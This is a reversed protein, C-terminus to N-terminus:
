GGGLSIAPPLIRLEEAAAEPGVYPLVAAYMMEPVAEEEPPLSGGGVAGLLHLFIGGATTEADTAPFREPHSSEYRGRELVEAMAKIGDELVMLTRPGLVAAEAIIFHALTRDRALYRYLVYATVRLQDRWSEVGERARAAQAMCAEYEARYIQYACDELDAFSQRFEAESLGTRELLDSLELNAYGREFCLDLLGRRITQRDQELELAQPRQGSM